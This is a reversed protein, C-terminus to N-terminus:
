TVSVAVMGLTYSGGIATPLPQYTTALYRAVSGQAGSATPIITLQINALAYGDAGGLLPVGVTEPIAESRLGRALVYALVGEVIPIAFWFGLIVAYEHVAFGGGIAIGADSEQGFCNCLFVKAADARVRDHRADDIHGCVSLHQGISVM